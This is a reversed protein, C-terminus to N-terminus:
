NMIYGDEMHIVKDVTNIIKPDHTSFLFSMHKSRNFYKMLEVIEQGTKSDLASTPEDAIIVEPETVMARAIAVRQQQGGSLNNPRQHIYNKLGVEELIAEAKEFSEKKSKKQIQLPFAVNEIASLVPILNYQQFVIGIKESRLATIRNDCFNKINEGCFHVEGSTPVDILSILNLLTSKGSGSPGAVVMFDGSEVSINVEKLAKLEQNGLAYTKDVNTLEIIKQNYNM